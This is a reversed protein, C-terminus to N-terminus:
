ITSVAKALVEQFELCEHALCLRLTKDPHQAMTYYPIPCDTTVDCIYLPLLGQKYVETKIPEKM